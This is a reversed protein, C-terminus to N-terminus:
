CAAPKDGSPMTPASVQFRKNGAEAGDCDVAATVGSTIGEGEVEVTEVVPAADKGTGVVAFVAVLGLGAAVGRGLTLTGAGLRGAVVALVGLRGAVAALVM